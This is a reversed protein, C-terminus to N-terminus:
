DIHVALWLTGHETSIVKHPTGSPIFIYDSTTLAIKRGDIELQAGGKLLLVWEDNEQCYEKTEPKSSSTIREIRVNKSRLIEEFTEGATPIKINEFINKM